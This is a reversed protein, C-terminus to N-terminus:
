PATAPAGQPRSAARGTTSAPAAPPTTETVLFATYTVPMGTADQSTGTSAAVGALTAQLAQDVKRDSM